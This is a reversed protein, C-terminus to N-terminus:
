GNIWATFKTQWLWTTSLFVLLVLVDMLFHIFRSSMKQADLHVRDALYPVAIGSLLSVLTVMVIGVGIGFSYHIDHTFRLWVYIFVCSSLLIGMVLTVANQGWFARLARGREIDQNILSQCIFASTQTAISGGLRMVLPAFCLVVVERPFQPFFRLIVESSFFGGLLLLLYWTARSLLGSIFSFDQIDDPVVGAMQLVDEHAEDRLIDIIDDVTVMGKLKGEEDVVPLCVFNYEEILTAADTQPQYIGLRIVDRKMFDKLHKGQAVQLLQRLSVVGVLNEFDDTVYIYFLSEQTETKQIFEIAERATLDQKLSFVNVAMIRGCTGEEYELIEEVEQKTGVQMLAMIETAVEETINDLLHAAEDEPIKQLIEAIHRKEGESHESQRLYTQIFPGGLELFTKAEVEHGRVHRILEVGQDDPLQRIVAAIESPHSKILIRKLHAEANHRSLRKITQLLIDSKKFEM